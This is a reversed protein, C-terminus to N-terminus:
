PLAPLGVNGRMVTMIAKYTQATRSEGLDPGTEDCQAHVSMVGMLLEVYRPSLTSVQVSIVCPECFLHTVYNDYDTRTALM